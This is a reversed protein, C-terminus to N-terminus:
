QARQLQGDAVVLAVNRDAVDRLFEQAREPSILISRVNGSKLWTVELRDLSWAPSGLPNSTSRISVIQALPVEWRLLGSRIRLCDPMVEYRTPVAVVCIIAIMLLAISLPLWAALTPGIRLYAVLGIVIPIAVGGALVVVLWRDVKTRYRLLEVRYPAM